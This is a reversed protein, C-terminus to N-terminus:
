RFDRSRGEVPPDEILGVSEALVSVGDGQRQLRGSVILFHEGRLLARHTMYVDPRVVVNIMGTEDELTLFMVGKATSPRQRCTVMGAFRVAADRPQTKLTQIPDTELASRRLAIPHTTLSLGTARYDMQLREEDTLDPLTVEVSDGPLGALLPTSRTWLAEITWLASRRDLGFAAFADARALARLSGRDLGSRRALENLDVFPGAARAAELAAGAAPGFGHILRLGLRLARGSAAVGDAGGATPDDAGDPELTCDWRSELACIPRVRVGHRRADDVLVRPPYFGMPQANLIGTAWAAPWYRRLAATAYVLLAFSTAHSEPFGYEGFGRIQEAIRLAYPRAIGRASMRAVLDVVLPELSDEGRKAGMARRLRDAEGGTYGAVAMAISMVQEQFIPVGLTRELIPELSPHPYRVPSRGSRRALYPQVMGGQIPGPRMLAIEVVLDYFSRPKLRPLMSMQARSEVQFVGVTDAQCLQDYVHPDDGPLSALDLDRGHHAAIQAFTKRIATLVGLGLVDVKVFGVADVDDKDWQIVTRGAMAAPEVPCLRSLDNHAIVFGGVHISTHRPLGKLAAAVRAVMRVQGDEPSLGAARIRERMTLDSADTALGRALRDVADAGLGIVKGVDRVASRTRWRIVEGVMAARARGYRTYLYQIVEERREHEFDVDIDPPDARERSLFREFLMDSREPDVSTIGLAFCVASNAASGRGQCLIGQERAFRVLDAITLFYAAFRLDAIIGLERDLRSRVSPSAGGPWRRAAGEDVLARLHEDPSRGAPVLEEPYRYSLSSLRFDCREAVEVTRRVWGPRDRFLLAMEQPSKLRREVNPELLRGAEDLLVGHRLCTLIDQVPQRSRDHVLVRGVAVVPRALQRSLAEARAVAEADGVRLLRSAAVYLRDGFADSLAGAADPHALWPPQALAILGENDELLADLDLGAGGKPRGARSRTILACLRGWGAHDRAYVTLEPLANLTLTSGHLLPWDGAARWARPLGYVGDRDCIGLASLGLARAREVLEEPLSAGERFSFASQCLLEAYQANDSGGSHSEPARWRPLAM